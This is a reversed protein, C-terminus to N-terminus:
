PDEPDPALAALDDPTDVDTAERRQAPVGVLDLDTLLRFFGLGTADDPRVALLREVRLVACLQRREGQGVLVAGDAARAAALLRDVTASTVWPMDVATVAVWAATTRTLAADLGALLGAAPGAGAPEERVFTAPLSTPAEPGVVVTAAAGSLATLGRELLTRGEAVLAAKDTGGLRRGTGGTLLVGVFSDQPATSPDM